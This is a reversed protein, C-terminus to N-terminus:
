PHQASALRSTEEAAEILRVLRSEIHTNGVMGITREMERTGDFYILTPISRIDFREKLAISEDVNVKYFQIRGGWRKQLRELTPTLTRSPPCWDAYFSIVVPTGSSNALARDCQATTIIRELPPAQSAEIAVTAAAVCVAILGGLVSMKRRSTVLQSTAAHSILVSLWYGAGFGALVYGAYRMITLIDM